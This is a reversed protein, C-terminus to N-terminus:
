NNNTIKKLIDDPLDTDVFIYDELETKIYQQINEKTIIIPKLKIWKDTKEGNILKIATQLVIKSQWTPSSIVAFEFKPYQQHYTMYMKLLGNYDDGTIPVLPRNAALLAKLAGTAVQGGDSWVGDIQDYTNILDLMIEKARDEQWYADRYACVTIDSKQFVERAGELAAATGPNGPMGGLVVINGKGDLKSSLWEAWRRGKEKEDPGVYVTYSDPDDLPLNFNIVKIGKDVAKKLTPSIADTSTPIVMIADVQQTILSEIDNVQKGINGQGDLIILELEPYKASEQKLSALMQARWSNGSFGNSFGVRYKIFSRNLSVKKAQDDKKLDIASKSEFQFLSCGTLNILVILVLIITLRKKRCSWDRCM